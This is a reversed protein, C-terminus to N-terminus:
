YPRTPESIHILSMVLFVTKDCNFVTGGDVNVPGNGHWMVGFRKSNIVTPKETLSKLEEETLGLQLESNLTKIRDPDSSGFNATGGTMIVAYDPVDFECGYFSEVANGIVYAGYGSKGTITIRSNIATLKVRQCDDTSLVGWGEASISSNIYTAQTDDGLLNTARCNGALGLMWPVEKMIGLDVNPVYDAPLVGDTTAINSNNIVMKAGGAGTVATRVAGQTKIETEDVVLRTDKGTAMVASGYGSFDNGGNGEFDIKANKITKNGGAVFIGNFAEGDSKIIIDEAGESTLKGNHVAATVSKPEVVGTEDLYLAQRYYHNFERYKVINAETVTLMIKGQYTGPKIGTEIGDVTMTVSHQDDTATIDAGEAITLSELETTQNVVWTSGAYIRKEM